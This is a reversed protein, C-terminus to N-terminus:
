ATGRQEQPTLGLSDVEAQKKRHEALRREAREVAKHNEETPEMEAKWRRLDLNEALEVEMNNNVLIHTATAVKALSELKVTQARESAALDVKVEAVKAAARDLAKRQEEARIALVQQSRDQDAKLRLILYGIWASFAAGLAAILTNLVSWGSM